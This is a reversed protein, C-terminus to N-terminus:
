ELTMSNKHICSITYSKQGYDNHASVLDSLSHTSVVDTVLSFPVIEQKCFKNEVLCIIRLMELVCCQACSLAVM